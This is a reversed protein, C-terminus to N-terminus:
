KALAIETQLDHKKLAATVIEDKVRIREITSDYSEVM